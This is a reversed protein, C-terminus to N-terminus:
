EANPGFEFTLTTRSAVPRGNEQAPRFRSRRAARLAAAELGYQLHEVARVRKESALRWREIVVAETVRGTRSVHVAVRVRARVSSERAPAPYSPQVARFLRPATDPRQATAPVEARGERLQDDDAPDEIALTGDGFDIQEEIVVDNPVVVPPTPPPPPPSQERSQTTPRIENIAIREPGEARFPGDPPSASPVPWWRVLATGLGLVLALALLLRLRYVSPSRFSSHPPM